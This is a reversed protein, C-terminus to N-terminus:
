SRAGSRRWPRTARWAGSESPTRPWSLSRPRSCPGRRWSWWFTRLMCSCASRPPHTAAPTAM